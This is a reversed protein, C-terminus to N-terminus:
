EDGDKNIRSLIVAPIDGHPGGWDGEYQRDSGIFTVKGNIIKPTDYGDEYGDVVMFANDDFQELAKRLDRVTLIKQSGM